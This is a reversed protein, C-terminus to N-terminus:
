TEQFPSITQHLSIRNGLGATERLKQWHLHQFQSPSFLRSHLPVAVLGSSSQVLKGSTFPVSLKLCVHLDSCDTAKTLVELDPCLMQFCTTCHSFLRKRKTKVKILYILNNYLVLAYKDQDHFNVYFFYNFLSHSSGGAAAARKWLRKSWLFYFSQTATEEAKHSGNTTVGSIIVDRPHDSM